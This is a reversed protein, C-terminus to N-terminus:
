FNKDHFTSFYLSASDKCSSIFGALDAAVVGRDRWKGVSDELEWARATRGSLCPSRGEGGESRQKGTM